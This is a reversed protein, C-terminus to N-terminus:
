TWGGRHDNARSTQETKVPSDIFETWKALLQEVILEARATSGILRQAQRLAPDLRLCAQLADADGAEAARRTRRALWHGLMSLTSEEAEWRGATSVVDARRAFLASLGEEVARYREVGGEELLAHAVRPVGDALDLAHDLEDADVTTRERLWAHAQDRDPVPVAYHQCRSRITPLVRLPHATLLILTATGSPEELTKLLANAGSPRLRDADEIVAIKARGRHSTLHLSDILRRVSGVVIERESTAKGKADPMGVTIHALDPHFSDTGLRCEACRGCPRMGVDAHACLLMRAIWQALARKGVGGPGTVMLGHALRQDRYRRGLAEAVPLLWPDLDTM